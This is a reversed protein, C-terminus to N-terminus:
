NGLSLECTFGALSISFVVTRPKIDPADAEAHAPRSAILADINPIPEIAPVEDGRSVGEEFSTKRAADDRKLVKAHLPQPFESVVIDRYALLTDTQEFTAALAINYTALCRAEGAATAAAQRVVDLYPGAALRGEHYAHTAKDLKREQASAIKRTKQYSKYGTRVERLLQSISETSTQVAPQPENSTNRKRQARDEKKLASKAGFAIWQDVPLTCPIIRRNDRSPLGILDRLRQENDRVACAGRTVDATMVKLRDATVAFEPGPAQDCGLADIEESMVEEATELEREAYMLHAEAAYLNWYAEEVSRVLAGTSAKFPQVADDARLRAIVTPTGDATSGDASPKSEGAVCIFGSHDFAIRIAQPLSLQWIEQSEACELDAQPCSDPQPQDVANKACPPKTADTINVTITFRPGSPRSEDAAKGDTPFLLGLALISWATQM